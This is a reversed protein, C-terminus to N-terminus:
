TCETFSYGEFPYWEGNINIYIIYWSDPMGQTDLNWRVFDPIGDNNLDIEYVVVRAIPEDVQIQDSKRKQPTAREVRRAIKATHMPLATPTQFWLLADKVAPYDPLLNKGMRKHAMGEACNGDEFNPKILEKPTWQYAGVLGTLGIVHEIIPKDLTLEYAGIDWAGSYSPGGNREFHWKPGGTVRGHELIGFHASIRETGASGPLIDKANRFLSPRIAPLRLNPLEAVLCNDIMPLSDPYNEAGPYLTRDWLREAWDAPLTSKRAAYMAQFAACSALPPDMDPAAVIGKALVAKMADFEPIAYRVLKPPKEDNGCCHGNELMGSELNRQKASLMTDWFYRGAQFLTAASPAIWFARPPSYQSNSQPEGSESVEALTLPKDGLLRCPIFGHSNEGWAIECAKDGQALLRVETNTIIQGLVTSAPEATQRVNVWSGRVWRTDPSAASASAAASCALIACLYLSSFNKPM